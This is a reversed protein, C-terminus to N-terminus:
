FCAQALFKRRSMDLHDVLGVQVGTMGTCLIPASVIAGDDHRFLERSQISNARLLEYEADDVIPHPARNM